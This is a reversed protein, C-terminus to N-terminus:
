RQIAEMVLPHNHGLVNTSFNNNLDLLRKGEITYIYQADGKDVFIAHPGYAFTRRSFGGPIYDKGKETEKKSLHFEESFNEITQEYNIKM